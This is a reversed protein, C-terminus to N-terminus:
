IDFGKKRMEEIDYEQLSKYPIGMIEKVARDLEILGKNIAGVIKISTVMRANISGLALFASVEEDPRFESYPEKGKPPIYRTVGKLASWHVLKDGVSMKDFYKIYIVIKVGDPCDKLIGTPELKYDPEFSEIDDTKYKTMVKKLKRIEAEHSTVIKKLSPSLEDIETTRYIKVDQVIGTYKSKLTIRGIESISEEDAGDSSLNRLLMNADKDDYANQWIMLTDGEQVPTGKKILFYVNTNKDLTKEKKTTIESAMCNSLYNTIMTSDEYGEDTNLIAIKALVGPTAAINNTAGVMNSYSTHDYAVIQNPKVKSGEKLDSDLKVTVYFGGDSNKEVNERLDVFEAPIKPDNYDIIMYEDTKEKITGNGKAKWSFTDSTLYPLAEDAGNTVLLPHSVTTRMLHKYTQVFNMASRFPDDRTTGFPTMAETISFTKAVGMKEPDSEDNIFGMNSDIDMDITAQRTIGANAAFGTSLAVRNIMSDDFTRKDMSYSRDSNMGSLGKFGVSNSTEKELLPTSKSLDSCTADVLIADIIASRKMTMAAGTKNRKLQTAYAGYSNAICKYAYGGIIENTRYRNGTIDTHRNYSNDCLLMNAYLMLDRYNNPIHYIDCVTATKPDVFLDVFNDLGDAKIRGGFCDLFDLWMSKSNIDALSYDETPCDKLGNMLMGTSGQNKFRLYGDKFKIFGYYTQDRKSPAKDLIEMPINAANLVDSLGYSYGLVVITPIETTLISAKSYTYKSSVSQSDIYDLSMGSAQGDICMCIDSVILNPDETNHWIITKSSKNYAYPIANNNKAVIEDTIGYTSRIEDQNMYFIYDKTEIKLVTSALDIYDYPLSYKSCIRTTDGWLVTIGTGEFKDLAKIFKDVVPCSKGPATNFRRIFIKNYNSVLQVTDEDTKVCPILVFQGNITKDNGRLRMFRNNKFKPVDFVLSFRKGNIDELAVHYTEIYDESTTTNEVTVDRVVVPTSRTALFNLIAMIDANLDYGKEFNNFTIHDWDENISDIHLSTEEIPKVEKSIEIADKIKTGKVTRNLFQKQEDNIRNVRAISVKTRNADEASIREIIDNIYETDNVIEDANDGRVAAKNVADVLLDKDEDTKTKQIKSIVKKSAPKIPTATKNPTVKDPESSKYNQKSPIKVIIDDAKSSGVLNNIKIGAAKEIKDIADIAVVRPSDIDNILDDEDNENNAMRKILSKLKILNTKNMDGINLKLYSSNGIIVINFDKYMMQLVAEHKFMVLYNIMSFPNISVNLDFLADIKDISINCAKKWSEFDIFITKKKYGANDYRDDKLLRNFLEIYLEMGKKRFYTCNKMFLDLYFSLDVYLNLKKYKDLKYYTYKIKPNANKIIAYRDDLDKVTKMRDKWIIKRLQPSYNKSDEQLPILIDAEESLNMRLVDDKIYGDGSKCLSIFKTPDVSESETITGNEAYLVANREIYYSEFYKSVALNNKTMRISSEINPTMLYIASGRRKDHLDIPTIFKRKYLKFSVLEDLLVM